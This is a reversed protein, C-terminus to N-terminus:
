PPNVKSLLGWDVIKLINEKGFQQKVSEPTVDIKKELMENIWNCLEENEVDIMINDENFDNSFYGLRKIQEILMDRENEWAPSLMRTREEGLNTLMKYILDNMTLGKIREMQLDTLYIPKFYTFSNDIDPKMLMDGLGENNISDVDGDISSDVDPLLIGKPIKSTEILPIKMYKSNKFKNYMNDDVVCQNDIGYNRCWTPRKEEEFIIKEGNKTKRRRKVICPANNESGIKSILDCPKMIVSAIKPALNISQAAQQGEYSLEFSPIENSDKWQKKVVENGEEDLLYVCGEKGCKPFSNSDAYCSTIKDEFAGGWNRSKRKKSRTTKYRKFTIVSKNKHKRSRYKKNKKTLFFKKKSKITHM